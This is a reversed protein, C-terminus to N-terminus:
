TINAAMLNVNVNGPSLGGFTLQMIKGMPGIPTTDTEGTVRCAVLALGFTMLVALVSQWDPMGFSYHALWAMGIRALLERVGFGSGPTEIAAMDARAKRRGSVVAGFGSSARVISRGQLASSLLGSPVMCATGGWLTWPVLDK